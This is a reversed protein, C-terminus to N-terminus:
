GELVERLLDRQKFGIKRWDFRRAVNRYAELAMATRRRPNALLEAVGEAFTEATDGVWVSEGHILDLGACGCTTSVVARQMAMAELVKINTGASVPTPVLVVNAAVYLPRVDAVFGLM